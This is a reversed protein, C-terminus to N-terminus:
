RGAGLAKETGARNTTPPLSGGLCSRSTCDARWIAAWRLLDPDFCAWLGGSLPVLVGRRTRNQWEGDVVLASRSVDGRVVAESQARPSGVALAFAAVLLLQPNGVM